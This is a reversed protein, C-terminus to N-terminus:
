LFTNVFRKNGEKINSTEYTQNNLNKRKSSPNSSCQDTNPHNTTSDKLDSKQIDVVKRKPNSDYKFGQNKLVQCECHYCKM